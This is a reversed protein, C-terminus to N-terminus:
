YFVLLRAKFNHITGIIVSVFHLATTVVQLVGYNANICMTALLPIILFKTLKYGRPNDEESNGTSIDKQTSLYTRSKPIILVMLVVSLFAIAASFKFAVEYSFNDYLICGIVEALGHGTFYGMNLLGNVFDFKDHFNANIFDLPVLYGPYALVGQLIRLAFSISILVINNQFQYSFGTALQLVVYGTMIGALLDRSNMRKLARESLGMFYIFAYGVFLSSGVLGYVKGSINRAEFSDALFGYRISCSVSIAQGYFVVVLIV